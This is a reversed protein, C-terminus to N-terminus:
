DHLHHLIYHEPYIAKWVLISYVIFNTVSCNHGACIYVVVLFMESSGFVEPANSRCWVPLACPDCQKWLKCEPLLIDCLLQVYNGM